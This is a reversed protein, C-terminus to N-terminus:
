KLVSWQTIGSFVWPHFKKMYMCMCVSYVYVSYM